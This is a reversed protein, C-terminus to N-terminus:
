KHFIMGTFHCCMWQLASLHPVATMETASAPEKVVLERGLILQSLGGQKGLYHQQGERPLAPPQCEIGCRAGGQM